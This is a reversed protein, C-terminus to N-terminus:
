DVIGRCKRSAALIAEGLDTAEEPTFGIWAIPKGFNLYVKRKTADHSLAMQIEGEDDHCVSPLPREGTAGLKMQQAEIEMRQKDNDQMAPNDSHHSM